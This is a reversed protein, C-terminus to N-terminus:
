KSFGRFKIKLIGVFKNREASSLGVLLIACSISFLCALSQIFIRFYGVTLSSYVYFPLLLSLLLVLAAPIIVSRIFITIPLDTIRKVLIIRALLCALSVFIATWATSEPPYGNKLLSWSIPLNMWLMSGVVSQYLAVRGTAQAATMLPYSFTDILVGIIILRTFIATYEPVKKLWIELLAEAEFLVPLALFLMLFFGFKSSRSVLLYMAQKDGTSWYKMIQPRAATLFNQMFGSVAASVQTAVGRAANIAAGFYNNLIVNVFVNTFLGSIAGFLNWGSFMVIEYFLKKEFYFEFHSEPYHKKCVAFYAFFSIASVITLLGGYTSLSDFKSLGIAYIVGLKAMAEFVSIVSFVTINEHAIVLSNYPIVLLHILFTAVSFQFFWFAANLRVEPIVIKNYFFWLGVTESLILIIFFLVCYILRTLNFVKKLVDFKKIGIEFAFYRSAASTMMGSLFSFMSVVGAIVNALGYDVEGLVALLERSTFFSLVMVMLLRIYLLATNKAIRKNNSEAM